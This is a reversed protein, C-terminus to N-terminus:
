GIFYVKTSLNIYVSTNWSQIYDRIKGVSLTISSSSFSTISPPYYASGTQRDYDRLLNWGATWGSAATDCVLLFQSASTAGLSSINLTTDASYTGVLKYSSRVSVPVYRINHLNTHNFFHLKYVLYFFSVLM